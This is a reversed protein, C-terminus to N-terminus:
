NKTWLRGAALIKTMEFRATVGLTRASSDHQACDFCCGWYLRPTSPLSRSFDWWLQSNVKIFVEVDNRFSGEVLEPYFSSRSSQSIEHVWKKQLRLLTLNRVSRGGVSTSRSREAHCSHRDLRNSIVRHKKPDAFRGALRRWLSHGGSVPLCPFHVVFFRMLYFLCLGSDHAKSM